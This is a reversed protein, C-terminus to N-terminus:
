AQRELLQQMDFVSRYIRAASSPEKCTLRFAPLEQLARLARQRESEFGLEEKFPIFSAIRQELELRPLPDLRPWGSTGTELFICATPKVTRMKVPEISRTLALFRNEGQTVLRARALLEPFLQAAAERFAAPWFDGWALVQGGDFELFTSQDSQFELGEGQALYSSTTKGSGSEGFILIGQGAKAVCAATIPLL